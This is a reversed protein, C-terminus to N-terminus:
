HSIWSQSTWHPFPQSHPTGYGLSVHTLPRANLLATVGSMATLLVEDNLTRDNLVNRLSRKASQILREWSGGFLPSAPPSFRWEVYQNAM